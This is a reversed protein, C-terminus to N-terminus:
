EKQLKDKKARQQEFSWRRTYFEDRLEFGKFMQFYAQKVKNQIEIESQIWLTEFITLSSSM